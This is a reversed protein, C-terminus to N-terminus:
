RRMRLRPVDLVADLEACTVFADAGGVGGRIRVGRVAAPQPLRFDIIQFPKHADLPESPETGGRPVIWEGGVLIEVTASLFWGGDVEPGHHHPGEILRVAEIRTERDWTVWLAIEEGTSLGSGESSYHRRDSDRAPERGSFDTEFGNAFFAPNGVGGSTPASAVSAGAEVRGGARRVFNNASRNDLRVLPNVGLEGARPPPPLLWRGGPEAVGGGAEVAAAAIPVLRAALMSFRDEAQPDGPLHDPMADRTRSIWYRDSLMAGPFQEEVWGAGNLFGLLGAMTATPNDADWGSLTGIRITRMLDGEGYLLCMVGTALNVSSETWGRYRFGHLAADRQYRAYIADRTREWDDRDPNALYEGLVFDVIDAAKSSDPLYRRARGILWIAQERPPMDGDVHPALAHLLVFFQAAHSAHGGSTTRIPLDAMELALAPMGPALAGFLETTLQADIKLWHANAAPLATAPPTVGEGMLERARANSVWIFRNIHEIWGDAIQQPTLVLADHTVLLHAYVYEIDTDDDAPWPDLGTVFELRGRGFDRGWDADTLFPPEIRVGEARLGTWNGISQALWLGRMREAYEAETMLIQGAAASALLVPGLASCLKSFM